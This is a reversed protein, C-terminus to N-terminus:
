QTIGSKEQFMNCEMISNLTDGSSHHKLVLVPKQRPVVTAMTNRSDEDTIRGFTSRDSSKGGVFSPWNIFDRRLEIYDNAFEGIETEDMGLAEEQESVRLHLGPTMDILHAIFATVVFTYAAAACIYAFQIYLQKWNSDLFGGRVTTNVGDLSIVANTAFFANFLLGVIGGIGHAATIDLTDDIGLIFKLKTALNSTCGCVIGMIVAAWPPIFGCASTAGVLGAITGSCFGVMGFKRTVRYDLLSWAMGGFAGALMTNWIAMIARMNAGLASGTNFGVWGFWLIFTGLVVLTVSHPRFNVLERDGRRGLVWSYALGGFGSGIEVPGGGSFDLVGWKFGWGNPNWAWYALPCYVITTWFFCFVMAPLLRGREAVAGILIGVTVCAFEMQLFSFLLEPVLPSAPSADGSIHRLGLNRFNGIFGNTATSSFALSYGCLYWQLVVVSNCVSVSWILSLASKRKVLGGYLFALGPMMFLTLAGAMIIFAMDGKDFQSADRRLLGGNIIGLAQEVREVLGEIAPHM